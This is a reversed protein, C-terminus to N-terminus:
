AEGPKTLTAIITAISKRVAEPLKPWSEVVTELDPDIQV